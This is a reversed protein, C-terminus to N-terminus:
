NTNSIYKLNYITQMLEIEHVIKHQIAQQEVNIEKMLDLVSLTGNGVKAEASRKVSGRLRIIDDDSTLLKRIKQVENDNQIIDLRNNFLFTERQTEIMGRDVKINNLKNRRTYFSGLNWSLSVGGIYYASFKNELMNLGPKGYGGTVFVNFKPMLGAHVEKKRADLGQFQAEYLSLEPRQGNLSYSQDVVPKILLTHEDIREGVLASFMELYAKRSYILETRNQSTKIQEVEVADLDAQNALGNEIYASVQKFNRELEEQYLTNQKLMENHLLVGFFLQNVRERITYLNVELSRKNVEAQSRINEKQASIVGGDWITQNVDLTTGYQDKSMGKIGPIDVPIKTVESQYTAKASVQVQPLYGKGINSLNYDKSKEILDYQSILPYNATAKEYCAEISLQAHGSHFIFVAIVCIFLRHKM